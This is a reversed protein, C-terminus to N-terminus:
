ECGVNLFTLALFAAGSFLCMILAALVFKILMDHVYFDCLEVSFWEVTM